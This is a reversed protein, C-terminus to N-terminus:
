AFPNTTTTIIQAPPTPESVIMLASAPRALSSEGEVRHMSGILVCRSAQAWGALARRIGRIETM